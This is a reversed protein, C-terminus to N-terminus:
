RGTQDDDDDYRDMRILFEDPTLVELDPFQLESRRFDRTNNTVITKAGAAVALELVHNDGEDPLNPRWLYFINVWRCISLFAEFLDQREEPSAPCDEFLEERSMVAVFETFLATGMVPQLRRTLCRRLVDRNRGQASLLAGIFVNTDVVIVPIV